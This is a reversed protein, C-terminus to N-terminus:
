TGKDGTMPIVEGDNEWSAELVGEMADLILGFAPCKSNSLILTKLDTAYKYDGKVSRTILLLPNGLIIVDFNISGQSLKLWIVKHSCTGYIDLIVDQDYKWFMALMCIQNCRMSMGNLFTWLLHVALCFEPCISCGNQAVTHVEDIVVLQIFNQKSITMLCRYWSSGEQLLQPSAYMFNSVHDAELPHLSLLQKRLDKGFVGRHKDLHYAKIFDDRNQASNVQNSGLRGLPVMTLTIGMQLSGVTLPIVSKGLGM